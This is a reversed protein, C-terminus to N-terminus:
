RRRHSLSEGIKVVYLSPEGPAGTPAAIGQGMRTLVWAGLALAILVGANM